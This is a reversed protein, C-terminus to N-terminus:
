EHNKELIKNLCDNWGDAYTTDWETDDPFYGIFKPLEILPCLGPDNFCASSGSRYVPCSLCSDLKDIVLVYKSM